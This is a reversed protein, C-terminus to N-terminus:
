VHPVLPDQNFYKYSTFFPLAILLHVYPHKLRLIISSAKLRMEYPIVNNYLAAKIYQHARKIEEAALHTYYKAVNNSSFQKRSDLKIVMSHSDSQLLRNVNRTQIINHHKFHEMIHTDTM